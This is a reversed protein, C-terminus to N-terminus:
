VLECFLILTKEGFFHMYVDVKKLVLVGDKEFCYFVDGGFVYGMLDM